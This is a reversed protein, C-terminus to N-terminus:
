SLDENSTNTTVKRAARMLATEDLQQAEAAEVEYQHETRAKDELRELARVDRRREEWPTRARDAHFQATAALERRRTFERDMRDLQQHALVVEGPAISSTRLDNALVERAQVRDAHAQDRHTRAAEAEQEAAQWEARAQEEQLVRVRALRALRFEFRKV